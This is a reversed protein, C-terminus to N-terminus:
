SDIHPYAEYYVKLASETNILTQTLEEQDILIARIEPIPLGRLKILNDQLKRITEFKLDELQKIKAEKADKRIQLDSM